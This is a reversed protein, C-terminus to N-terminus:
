RLPKTAWVYDSDMSEVVIKERCCPMIIHTKIGEFAGKIAEKKMPILVSSTHCFPCEEFYIDNRVREYPWSHHFNIM